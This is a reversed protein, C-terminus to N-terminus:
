LREIASFSIGQYKVEDASWQMGQGELMFVGSADTLDASASSADARLSPWIEM